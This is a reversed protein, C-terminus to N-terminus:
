QDGTQYINATTIAFDLGNVIQDRNLDTKKDNKYIQNAIVSYDIGNVFNDGYTGNVDGAQLLRQANDSIDIKTTPWTLTQSKTNSRLHSITKVSIDYVGEPIGQVPFYGIGKDSTITEATYKLNGTVSDFLKIQAQIDQNTDLAYITSGTPDHRKEPHMELELQHNPPPGGSTEPKGTETLGDDTEGIQLTAQNSTIGGYVATINVTGTAVGSALGKQVGNDISALGNNSSSWTTLTNATIDLTSSDAFIAVANFQQTEGIEISSNTPTIAISVPVDLIEISVDIANTQAFPLITILLSLTLAFFKKM